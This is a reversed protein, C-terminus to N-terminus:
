RVPAEAHAAVLHEAHEARAEGVTAAWQGRWLCRRCRARYPTPYHGHNLILAPADADCRHAQLLEALDVDGADGIVVECSTCVVPSSAPPAATAAPLDARM